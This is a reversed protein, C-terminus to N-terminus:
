ASDGLAKAQAKSLAPKAFAKRDIEAFRPRYRQPHTHFDPESTPAESWSVLVTGPPTTLDPHSLVTYRVTSADNGLPRVRHKTWPGTVSACRTDCSSSM